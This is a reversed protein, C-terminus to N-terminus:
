EYEDALADALYEDTKAADTPESSSGTKASWFGDTPDIGTTTREEDTLWWVVARGGVKKREVDGRDHLEILHRRATDGSVGLMAALDHTTAVPQPHDALATRIEDNTVRAAYEGGAGREQDM